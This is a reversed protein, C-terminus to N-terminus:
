RSQGAHIGHRSVITAHRRFPGPPQGVRGIFGPALQSGPSGPPHAALRQCLRRRVCAGKILRPERQFEPGRVPDLVRSELRVGGPRAGGPTSALGGGARCVALRDGAYRRARDRTRAAGDARVPSGCEEARQRDGRHPRDARRVPHLLKAGCPLVPHSVGYSNGTLILGCSTREADGAQGRSAALGSYWGGGAAVAGTATPTAGADDARREIVALAIVGGLLAVAALGLLRQAIAASM